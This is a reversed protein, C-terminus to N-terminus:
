LQFCSRYQSHTDEVQFEEARRWTGVILFASYSTALAGTWNWVFLYFLHFVNLLEVWDVQGWLRERCCGRLTKLSDQMELGRLELQVWGFGSAKLNVRWLPSCASRVVPNM